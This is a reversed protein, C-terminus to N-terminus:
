SASNAGPGTQIHASFKAEVRIQDGSLGARLSNIYEGDDWGVNNHTKNEHNKLTIDQLSLVSSGSTSCIRLPESGITYAM